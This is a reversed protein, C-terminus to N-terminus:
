INFHLNKQLKSYVESAIQLDQIAVGTLDAVTVQDESIRRLLPNLIMDGMEIMQDEKIIGRKLAFSADGFQSCQSRSDVVICDSKSFIDPDLEQKGEDDAGVATIHTGKQIYHSYLLPQNSSTATVILNCSSALHVIDSAIEIKFHKLSPNQSLAEAKKSNRGWIMVKRCDTAYPLLQLQLLAQDGTGVLGICSVKKPALYKAAICGAVATRLNTLLGEDMLLCIPIGTSKDFLFLLGNGSPIGLLANKPFSSAIKIVYYPNKTAYGYKIHCEGNPNDFHLSAVPPIVAENQSYIVFGEEISSLISPIDICQQIDSKHYIKM